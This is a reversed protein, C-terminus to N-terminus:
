WFVKSLRGICNLAMISDHIFYYYVICIVSVFYLFAYIEIILFYRMGRAKIIDAMQIKRIYRQVPMKKSVLSSRMMVSIKEPEM